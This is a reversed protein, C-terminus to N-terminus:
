ECADMLCNRYYEEVAEPGLTSRCAEFVPNKSIVECMKNAWELRASLEGQFYSSLLNYLVDSHSSSKSHTKEGATKLFNCNWQSIDWNSM